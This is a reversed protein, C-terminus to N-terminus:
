KKENKRIAGMYCVALTLIIKVLTNVGHVLDNKVYHWVGANVTDTLDTDITYLTQPFNQSNTWYEVGNVTQVPVSIKEVPFPYNIWYYAACVTLCILFLAKADLRFSYFRGKIIDGQLDYSDAWMYLVALVGVVLFATNQLLIRLQPFAWTSVWPQRQWYSFNYIWYFEFIAVSLFTLGAAYAMNKSGTIGKIKYHRSLFYFMLGYIVFASYHMEKGYYLNYMNILDALSANGMIFAPVGEYLVHLFQLPTSDFGFVLWAAGTLVAIILATARIRDMKQFINLNWHVGGLKFTLNLQDMFKFPDAYYAGIKEKFNRSM